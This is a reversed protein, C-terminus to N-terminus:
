TGLTILVVAVAAAAMGVLQSRGAREHDLTSALVITSAPYLSVTVAVISLLGERTSLLYLGNAVCILM